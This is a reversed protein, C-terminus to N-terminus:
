VAQRGAWGLRYVGGNRTSKTIEATVRNCAVFIGSWVVCMSTIQNDRQAAGGASREFRMKGEAKQGTYVNLIVTDLTGRRNNTPQSFQNVTHQSPPPPCRSSTWDASWGVPRRALRKNPYRQMKAM